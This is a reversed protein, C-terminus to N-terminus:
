LWLFTRYELLVTVNVGREKANVLMKILDNAWDYSDDPDYIMSYMAIVISKNAKEIDRKISYYYEQDELLEINLTLSEVFNNYSTNLEVYKEKLQLLENELSNIHMQAISLGVILGICIGILLTLLAKHKM